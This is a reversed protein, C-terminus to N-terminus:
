VYRIDTIQDQLQGILGNWTGDKNLAGWANDPPRTYQITFNMQEQYCFYTVKYM